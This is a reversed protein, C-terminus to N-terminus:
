SVDVCDPRRLQSYFDKLSVKELMKGKLVQSNATSIEVAVYDGVSIESSNPIIVKINGDCRGYIEDRSRKSTNEILILQTTGILKENLLAANQRFVEVMKKLRELKVNQPV